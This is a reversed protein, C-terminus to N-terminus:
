CSLPIPMDEASPEVNIRSISVICGAYKGGLICCQLVHTKIEMLIM